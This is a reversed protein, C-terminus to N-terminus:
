HWVPLGAVLAALIVAYAVRRYLAERVPDFLAQGARSGAMYLPVLLAGLWLAAPTVLGRAGLGPLLAAGLLTLFVLTNARMRAAGDSGALNFLIVAPGTLGTAGGLAGAAAGVAVLAGPHPAGRYRWGAVLAALTAAVVASIAWRILGVDLRALAWTGAPLALLAAALMPAVRRLDAQAWARPLVTVVSSLGFMAMALVAAEPAVVATALPMFILASGFGAFGYVVGAVLTVAALPWLGPLALAAALGDPM